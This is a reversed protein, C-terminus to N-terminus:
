DDRVARWEHPHQRMEAIAKLTKEDPQPVFLRVLEDTVDKAEIQVGPAPYLEGSAIVDVRAAEAVGPLKDKVVALVNDAPSDGFVQDHLRLQLEKLQQDLRAFKAQDGAAKAAKAEAILKAGAFQPSRAYVMAIVRSDYTGVRLVKVGAGAGPGPLASEAAGLWTTAGVLAIAGLLLMAAMRRTTRM